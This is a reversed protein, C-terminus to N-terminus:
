AAILPSGDNAVVLIALHEDLDEGADSELEAELEVGPNQEGYCKWAKQRVGPHCSMSGSTCSMLNTYLEHTEHGDM